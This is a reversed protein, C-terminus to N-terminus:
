TSLLTDGTWHGVVVWGHRQVRQKSNMYITLLVAFEYAMPHVTSDSTNSISLAHVHRAACGAYLWKIEPYRDVVEM